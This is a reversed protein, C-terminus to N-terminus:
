YWGGAPSQSYLVTCGLCSRQSTEKSLLTHLSIVPNLFLHAHSHPRPYNRNVRVVFDHFWLLTQNRKLKTITKYLTNWVVLISVILNDFFLDNTKTVLGSSARRTYKEATRGVVFVYYYGLPVHFMKKWLPQKSLLTNSTSSSIDENGDWQLPIYWPVFIYNLYMAVLSFHFPSPDSLTIGFPAIQKGAISYNLVPYQLLVWSEDVANLLLILFGKLNLIGATSVLLAM